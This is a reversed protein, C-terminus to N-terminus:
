SQASYGGKEEVKEQLWRYVVSFDRGAWDETGKVKRFVEEALAGVFLPSSVM